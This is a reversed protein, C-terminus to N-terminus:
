MMRHLLTYEKVMSSAKFGSVRTGGAMLGNSPALAKKRIMRISAKMSVAMLGLSSARVMCRTRLGAALTSEDM